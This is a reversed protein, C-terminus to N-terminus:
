VPLELGHAAQLGPDRSASGALGGDAHRRPQRSARRVRQVRGRHGLVVPLRTRGAFLDALSASGAETEFRYDKEVRVWPLAQRQRALEDGRRTYEKEAELLELRAALWEARTGTVHKTMTRAETLHEEDKM